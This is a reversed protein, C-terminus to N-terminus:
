QSKPNLIGRVTSFKIYQNTLNLEQIDLVNLSHRMGSEPESIVSPDSDEQKILVEDISTKQLVSFPPHSQYTSSLANLHWEADKRRLNVTFVSDDWGRGLM